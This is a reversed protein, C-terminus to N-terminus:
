SLSIQVLISSVVQKYILHSGNAELRDQIETQRPLIFNNLLETKISVPLSDLSINGM